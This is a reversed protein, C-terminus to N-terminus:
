VVSKRDTTKAKNGPSRFGAKKFKEYEISGFPLGHPNERLQDATFGYPRLDEDIYYDIDETPFEQEYCLARGLKIMIQTDPLAEGVEICKQRLTLLPLWVDSKFWEPETRELYTAAPLVLDAM